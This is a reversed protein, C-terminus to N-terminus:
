KMHILKRTQVFDTVQGAGLPRAQGAGVPRAQLRYLYVGSALGNADFRVDHTGAERRENVLVAVRRGLVDYVTLTVDAMSGLAFRITTVPNFPNPYNQALDFRAPASGSAMTSLPQDLYKWVVNTDRISVWGVSASPFAIIDMASTDLLRWEAGAHYTCALGRNGQARGAAVLYTSLTGPIHRISTPSMGDTLWGPNVIENWTVGGDTTKRYVHPYLSCLGTNTDQFALCAYADTPASASWTHGRDTSRFIRRTTGFWVRNGAGAISGGGLYSYEDTLAPPMAVPNWNLGGNTTTYTELNPDGIAVGNNADFFYLYGGGYLASAYANQRTWTAGGDTTKYIGKSNSATVVYVAVYASNADLAVIQSLYGDEAGPISDCVWTKGGDTTRSYGPYPLTNAPKMLGAAWCVQDDVASLSAVAVNPPFNLNQHEWTPQPFGISPLLSMLLLPRILKMM